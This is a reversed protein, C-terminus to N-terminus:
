LVKRGPVESDKDHRVAYPTRGRSDTLSRLAGRRILEAAVEHASRALSGPAPGHVLRHRGPAVLQHGGTQSPDDLLEFVTKWDGVKAADALRHGASM